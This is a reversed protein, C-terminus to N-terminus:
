KKGKILITNVNSELLNIIVTVVASLVCFWSTLSYLIILILVGLTLDRGKYIAIYSLIALFVISILVGIIYFTLATMKNTKTTLITELLKFFEKM